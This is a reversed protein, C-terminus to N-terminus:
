ISSSAQSGIADPRVVIKVVEASAVTETQFIARAVHVDVGRVGTASSIM